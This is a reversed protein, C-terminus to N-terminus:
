LCLLRQPSSDSLALRNIILMIMEDRLGNNPLKLVELITLLLEPLVPKPADVFSVAFKAFLQQVQEQGLRNVILRTKEYYLRHLRWCGRSQCIDAIAIWQASFDSVTEQLADFILEM